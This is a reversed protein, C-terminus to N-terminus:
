CDSLQDLIEGNKISGTNVLAPWQGRDQVLHMWDMCEWGMKRLDM